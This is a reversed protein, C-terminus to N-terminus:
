IQARGAAGSVAYIGEMTHVEPIIPKDEGLALAYGDRPMKAFHHSNRIEKGNNAMAHVEKALTVVDEFLVDAVENVRMRLALTDICRSPGRIRPIRTALEDYSICGSGDLDIMKFLTELDDTEVDMSQLWTKIIDDEAIKSFETFTVTGDPSGLARFLGDMKSRNNEAMKKKQRVMILDDTAAVKFTEQLIVGNIVGVIAFGIAFRHIVSIITFWESVNESLLRAVPPWNGLVIEFMSLACRSFTGFYEYMKQHVELDDPSLSAASVADFYSAQLFQTLFLACTMVIFSLLVIAWFLVKEMLRIATAM